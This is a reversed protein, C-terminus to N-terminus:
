EIGTKVHGGDDGLREIGVVDAGASFATLSNSVKEHLHTKRRVATFGSRALEGSSLSLPHGDRSRQCDRGPQQDEVFGDGGNVPGHLLLDQPQDYVEAAVVIQGDDQNRVVELYDSPDAFLQGHHVGAAEDFLARGFVDQPMRTVLASAAEQLGGIEVPSEAVGADV